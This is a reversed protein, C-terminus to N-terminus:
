KANLAVIPKILVAKRAPFFGAVLGAILLVTLAGVAISLDITPNLFFYFKTDMVELTRKGSVYNMWETAAIGAVLGVYGSLLTIVVSEALVSRLISWPRAGLAKRIGFEHTREKVTILMINSISVVGSLLTLLGVVWLGTRLIRTATNQEKAGEAKNDIWLTTQDEPNFGHRHGITNRINHELQQMTEEKKGADTRLEISGVTVGENFATRLTSFPVQAKNPEMDNAKARVGIIHFAMSDVNVVQGVAATASGFFDEAMRGSVVMVKRRERLDNEDIFRGANLVIREMEAAAPMVGDFSGELRHKGAVMILGSRYITPVAESIQTRTASRTNEFDRDDIKVDRGKSYGEFAESAYGPVISVVDDAFHSSNYEFAHILGNGAGLLFVLLFIGTSVSLGTLGTRLKNQALHAFIEQWM